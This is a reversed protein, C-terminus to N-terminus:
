LAARLGRIVGGDRPVKRGSMLFRGQEFQERLYARHAEMAADVEEVPKQYTLTIIFM